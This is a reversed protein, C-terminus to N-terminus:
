AACLSAAMRAIRTSWVGSKAKFIVSQKIPAYLEWLNDKEHAQFQPLLRAPSTGPHERVGKPFLGVVSWRNVLSSAFPISSANTMCQLVIPRQNTIWQDQM